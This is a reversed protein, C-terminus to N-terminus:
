VAADEPSVNLAAAAGCTELGRVIGDAIVDNLLLSSCDLPLSDFNRRYKLSTETYSIHDCASRQGSVVASSRPSQTTSSLFSRQIKTKGGVLFM